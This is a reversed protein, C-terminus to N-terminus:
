GAPVPQRKLGRLVFLTVFAIGAAAIFAAGPVQVSRGPATAAAFLGGMLLPGIALMLAQISTLAGQVEGHRDEGAGHSLMAQVTPTALTAVALLVIGFLLVWPATALGLALYSAVTFGMGILAGGKDGWRKTVIPVLLAMALVQCVGGGGLVLGNTLPGWGFRVQNSLVFTAQHAAVILWLACWTFILRWQGPGGELAKLAGFPNARALQLPRRKEPPLSEPLAFFGYLANCIILGAAVLFPLRIWYASLIGGVAPGIIFGLGFMAGILGFYQSRKEVPTIDSIYASAVSVNSAFLGATLRLALLQGISGAWVWLLTNLGLCLLSTLLVPRRGWKDSLAGVLPSFLFQMMSYISFLTGVYFGTQSASGHSVQAVLKPLVPLVLGISLADLAVVGLAVAAPIRYNTTM